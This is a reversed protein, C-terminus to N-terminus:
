DEQNIAQKAVNIIAECESVEPDDAWVDEDHAIKHLAKRLREVEAQLAAERTTSAEIVAKIRSYLSVPMTARATWVVNMRMDTLLEELKQETM